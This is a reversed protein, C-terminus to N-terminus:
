VFSTRHIEPVALAVICTRDLLRRVNMMVFHCDVSSRMILAVHKTIRKTKRIINTLSIVVSLCTSFSSGCDIEVNRLRGFM